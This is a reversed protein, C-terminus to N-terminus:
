QCVIRKKLKAATSCNWESKWAAKHEEILMKAVWWVFIKSYELNKIISIAVPKVIVVAGYL